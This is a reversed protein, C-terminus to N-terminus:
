VWEGKLFLKFTTGNPVESGSEVSEIKVQGQYIEMFSKMIHMGFGTGFEGNTGPRSTKKNLDFLQGVLVPPMGIGSDKIEVTFFNQSSPYAQILISSNEHSFKIANSLINGLVQNKFSIPEVLLKLGEYKKRDWKLKINKKNLDEAFIKAVYDLSENLSHLTLDMDAKGKSAAYMRRVNQTIEFMSDAAQSAIELGRLNADPGLDKRAISHGINIRGLSNALDHFLVRFLSDVKQTQEILKKETRQRLGVFLFSLVSALTMWGFLMFFLSYRHGEETILQPPTYGLLNQITFGLVISFGIFAWIKAGRKGAVISALMPAAPLFLLANNEIGRNYFATTTTFVTAAGLIVNMVLFSSKTYRFLVPAALMILTTLAGIVTCCPSHMYVAVFVTYVMMLISCTLVTMLVSHIDRTDIDGKQLRKEGIYNFLAQYIGAVAGEEKVQNEM